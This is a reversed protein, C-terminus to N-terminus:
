NNITIGNNKENSFIPKVVTGPAIKQLGEIVVADGEKLGESILWNNGIAKVTTISTPKVQNKEDVIWVSSSGDAGRVVAKQPVLIANQTSTKIRVKVFSGPLLTQEPNDFLARLSVSSTSPDINVESFQLVGSHPYITGDSLYLDASVNNRGAIENKFQALDESSKELDVYIPDLQTITALIQVQNASVLSGETVVSKGINGSIPALVKTYDLYIKAKQVVAKAIAVDAQAAALSAKVDDFEQKSVAEVEILKKFRINKAKIAEFNAITKQLDAKASDYTALYPAPDIQYLQQGKEVKSGEIFLRKIIIGDVQPRIEAFRYASTRGPMEEFDDVNQKAIKLALVSPTPLNAESNHGPKFKSTLVSVGFISGIIELAIIFYAVRRNTKSNIKKLFSKLKSTTNEM